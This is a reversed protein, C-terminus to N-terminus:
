LNHGPSTSSWLYFDAITRQQCVHKPLIRFVPIHKLCPQFRTQHLATPPLQGGDQTTQQISNHGFRGRCCIKQFLELDKSFSCLILNSLCLPTECRQHPLLRDKTHWISSPWNNLWSECMPNLELTERLWNFLTTIWHTDEHFDKSVRGLCCCSARAWQQSGFLSLVMNQWATSKSSSARLPALGIFLKFLNLIEFFLHVLDPCDSVIHSSSGLACVIYYQICLIHIHLAWSNM